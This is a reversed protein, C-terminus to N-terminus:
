SLLKCNIKFKTTINKLNDAALYFHQELSFRFNMQLNIILFSQFCVQSLPLSKLLFYFHM